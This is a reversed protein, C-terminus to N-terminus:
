DKKFVLFKYTNDTFSNALSFNNKELNEIYFKPAFVHRKVSYKNSLLSKLFFVLNMLQTKKFNLLILLDFFKLFELIKMFILLFIRILQIKNLIKFIINILSKEKM